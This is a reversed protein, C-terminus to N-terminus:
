RPRQQSYDLLYLSDDKQLTFQMMGCRATATIETICYYAPLAVKYYAPSSIEQQHSFPTAFATTRLSGTVPMITVSGYDQM